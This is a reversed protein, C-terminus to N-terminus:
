RTKGRGLKGITSVASSATGRRRGGALKKITYHTQMGSRRRKGM